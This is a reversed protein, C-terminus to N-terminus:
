TLTGLNLVTRSPRLIFLSSALVLTAAVSLDRHMFLGDTTVVDASTEQRFLKKLTSHFLLWEM